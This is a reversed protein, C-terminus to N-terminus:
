AALDAFAEAVVLRIDSDASAEGTAAIIPNAACQIALKLLEDTEALGKLKKRAFTKAAASQQSDNLVDVSVSWLAYQIRSRFNPNNVLAALEIYTAM